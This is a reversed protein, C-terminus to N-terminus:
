PVDLNITPADGDASIAWAGPGLKGLDLQTATLQAIDICAVQGGGSGEVVTLQITKAADDRVLNVSDLQNCPAVGSWWRLDVTVTADEGIVARLLQVSVPHLNLLGLAPSVYTANGFLPNANPDGPVPIVIGSGTSGSGSSGGSGSGLGPNTGGGGGGIGPDGPVATPTPQPTAPDASPSPAAAAGCGAAIVVALWVAIPLSIPRNSLM